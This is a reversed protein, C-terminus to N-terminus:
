QTKKAAAKARLSSEIKGELMEKIGPWEGNLAALVATDRNAGKVIMHKRLVGEFTFGLSHAAKRSRVNFGDCRWEVRRYGLDFLARLLLYVSERNAGSGQAAPCYWTAGIEVRLDKASHNILCVMGVPKDTSADLVVFHRQNPLEVARDKEFAEFSPFPGTTMYRWILADADYDKTGYFGGLAKGSSIDYLRRVMAKVDKASGSHLPRLKVIYGDLEFSPPKEPFTAAKELLEDYLLPKEQDMSEPMGVAEHQMRHFSGGYYLLAFVVILTSCFVLFGVFIGLYAYGYVPDDAPAQM